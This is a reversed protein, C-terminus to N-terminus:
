SKARGAVRLPILLNFTRNAADRQPAIFLTAYRQTTSPQTHGLAQGVASLNAGTSLMASAFTRRLDHLRFTELNADQQIARWPRKLDTRPADLKRGPFLYKSVRDESMNRLIAVAGDALCVEHVIKTKTHSSPKVWLAKDFNFQDWTAHLVERLRAGTVLLLRIVNAAQQDEYRDCADLLRLVENQGLYTSREDEPFKEIGFCPNYGRLRGAVALNFMKSLGALLKNARYPSIDARATGHIRQIEAQQIDAIKRAGITPRVFRDLLTRMESATQPKLARAIAYEGTYYDIYDAVTPAARGAQRDQSPNGGADVQTRYKRAIKRAEEVTMSPFHGLVMKGQMGTRTRYQFIFSRHGKETVRVGLGPVQVDWVSTSTVASEIARKTLSSAIRKPM